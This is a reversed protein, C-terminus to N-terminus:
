GTFQRSRCSALTHDQKARFTTNIFFVTQPDGLLYLTLHKLDQGGGGLFPTFCFQGSLVWKSLFSLYLLCVAEGDKMQNRINYNRFWMVFHGISVSTCSPDTNGLCDIIIRSEEIKCIKLPLTYRQNKSGNSQKLGLKFTSICVIFSVHLFKM